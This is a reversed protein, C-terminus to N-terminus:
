VRSKSNDTEVRAVSPVVGIKEAIKQVPSKPTTMAREDDPLVRDMVVRYVLGDGGVYFISYGDFWKANQAYKSPPNSIFNLSQLLTVYKVRWRLKVTGDEHFPVISLPELECYATTLGSISRITAMRNWYQNLSTATMNFIRDEFVMNTRYFTYDLQRRFVLPVSERVRICIHNLQPNSPRGYPDQVEGPSPQAVGSSGSTSYLLSTSPVVTSSLCSLSSSFHAQKSLGCLRACRILMMSTQQAKSLM